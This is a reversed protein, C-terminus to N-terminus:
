YLLGIPRTLTQGALSQRIAALARSHAKEFNASLQPRAAYCASLIGTEVYREALHRLHKADCTSAAPLALPLTLTAASQSADFATTDVLPSIAAALNFFANKAYQELLPRNDPTIADPRDTAPSLWSLCASEACVTKMIEDFDLSLTLKRTNNM